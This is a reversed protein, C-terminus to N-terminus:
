RSHMVFVDHRLGLLRWGRHSVPDGTGQHEGLDLWTMYFWYRFPTVNWPFDFRWRSNKGRKLGLAHPFRTM